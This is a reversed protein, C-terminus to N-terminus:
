IKKGIVLLYKNEYKKYDKHHSCTQLILIDDSSDISIGTDYMSKEKLSIIHEHWSEESQFNLRMYSWDKTEILVSFIQYTYVGEESGIEIFKHNDFFSKEYYQELKKFPVELNSSNHGYILIKKDNLKVRYDLFIAGRVDKKRRENYNLYYDNDEGQVFVEDISTGPLRIYGVVDPNNLEEKVRIVEEKKENKEESTLELYVSGEKSISASFPFIFSVSIFLLLSTILIVFFVKLKKM